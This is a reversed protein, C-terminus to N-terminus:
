CRIMLKRVFALLEANSIEKGKLGMPPELRHLLSLLRYGEIMYNGDHDEYAWAMRFKNMSKVIANEKPDSMYSFNELIIAVVINFMICNTLLFFSLFFIVASWYGQSFYVHM